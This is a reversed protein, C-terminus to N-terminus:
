VFFLFFYNSYRELQIDGLEAKVLEILTRWLQLIFTRYAIHTNVLPYILVSAQTSDLQFTCIHHIGM